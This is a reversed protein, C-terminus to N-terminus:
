RNSIKELQLKFELNEVKRRYFISDITIQDRLMTKESELNLIKGELNKIEVEQSAIFWGLCVCAILFLATSIVNLNKYNM